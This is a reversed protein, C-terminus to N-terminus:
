HHRVIRSVPVAQTASLSISDLVALRRRVPRLVDRPCEKQRTSLFFFCLTNRPPMRWTGALTFFNIRSRRSPCTRPIKSGGAAEVIDVSLLNLLNPAIRVCSWATPTSGQRIRRAVHYMMFVKMRDGLDVDTFTQCMSHSNHAVWCTRPQAEFIEVANNGVAPRVISRRVM